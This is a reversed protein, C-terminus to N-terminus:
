DRPDLDRGGQYAAFDNLRRALIADEITELYGHDQCKWDMHRTEDAPEIREVSEMEHNCIPCLIYAM